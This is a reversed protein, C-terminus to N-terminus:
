NNEITEVVPDISKTAVNDVMELEPENEAQRTYYGLVQTNAPIEVDKKGRRIYINGNLNWADGDTGHLLVDEDTALKVWLPGKNLKILITVIDTPVFDVKPADRLSHQLM